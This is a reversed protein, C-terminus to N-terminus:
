TAELQIIMEPVLEGHFVATATGTLVVNWAEDVAVISVGGAM